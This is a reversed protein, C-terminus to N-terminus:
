LHPVRRLVTKPRPDAVMAELVEPEAAAIVDALDALRETIQQALEAAARNIDIGPTDHPDIALVAAGRKFSTLWDPLSALTARYRIWRHNDWGTFKTRYKPQNFQEVMVAAAAAGRNALRDITAGQMDLNMGGQETTQLVEVIRDRYGPQDLQAVDSWNRASNFAQGAFGAM